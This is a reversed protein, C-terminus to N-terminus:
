MQNNVKEACDCGCWMQNCLVYKNTRDSVCSSSSNQLKDTVAKRMEGINKTENVRVEYDCVTGCHM